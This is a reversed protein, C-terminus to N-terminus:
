RTEGGAGAAYRTPRRPRIEEIKTLFEKVEEPSRDDGFSFVLTHLTM